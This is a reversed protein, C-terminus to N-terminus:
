PDPSVLRLGSVVRLGSIVRDLGLRYVDEAVAGPAPQMAALELMVYGHITAWLHYAVSGPEDDALEGSTMADHVWGTLDGFSQLARLLAAPGPEFEPISGGFMVMYHTSHQIAWRRYQLGVARLHELASPAGNVEGLAVDFREFGDVFLAEVLGSKSGFHTYIGTTSCGAQDAVARVRLGAAGDRRLVVLAAALMSERSQPTSLPSAM